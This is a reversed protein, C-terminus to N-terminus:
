RGCYVLCSDSHLHSGVVEVPPKSSSGVSGHACCCIEAFDVQECCATGWGLCHQQRVSPWLLLQEPIVHVLLTCSDEVALVQHDCFWACEICSACGALVHCDAPVGHSAACSVLVPHPVHDALVLPAPVCVYLEKHGAALRQCVCVCVRWLCHQQRVFPWLVAATALFLICICLAAACSGQCGIFTFQCWWQAGSLRPGIPM